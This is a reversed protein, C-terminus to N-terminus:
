LSLLNFFFSAHTMILQTVSVYALIKEIERWQFRSTAIRSNNRVEYVIVGKACLGLAMEGGPRTKEPLVQYVLVGYEPLQQTM